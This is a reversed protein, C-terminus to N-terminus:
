MKEALSMEDKFEIDVDYFSGTLTWVIGGLIKDFPELNQIRARFYGAAILLEVIKQYIKERDEDNSQSNSELPSKQVVSGKRLLPNSLDNLNHATNITQKRQLNQKDSM